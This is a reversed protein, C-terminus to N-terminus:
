GLLLTVLVFNSALFTWCALNYFSRPYEVAANTVAAYGDVIVVTGPDTSTNTLTIM